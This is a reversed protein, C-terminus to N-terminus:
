VHMYYFVRHIIDEQIACVSDSVHSSSGSDNDRVKQKIAGLDNKVLEDVNKQLSSMNKERKNCAPSYFNM